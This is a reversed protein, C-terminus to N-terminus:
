YKPQPTQTTWAQENGDPQSTNVSGGSRLKIIILFGDMIYTICAVYGFIISGYLVKCCDLKAWKIVISAAILNFLAFIADYGLMILNLLRNNNPVLKIMHCLILLLGIILGTMATFEYFKGDDTYDGVVSSFMIVVGIFNSILQIVGLIGEKTRFHDFYESSMM